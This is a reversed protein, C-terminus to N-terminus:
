NIEVDETSVGRRIRITKAPKLTEMSAEGPAEDLPRLSLSITGTAEAATVAEVQTETLELTATKGVVTGSETDQTTQDIALVRVDRLIARSRVESGERSRTDKLTHLVDVRDNPLIFGGATSQANVNIAVARKGPALTAALFGKPEQTLARDAIPEGASIPRNAYQGTVESFAEPRETRAIFTAPVADAAVAAMALRRRHAPRRSSRRAGGRAGFSDRGGPSANGRYRGRTRYKAGRDM